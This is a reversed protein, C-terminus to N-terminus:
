NSEYEIEGNVFVKINKGEFATKAANVASEKSSCKITTTITKIVEIEVEYEQQCEDEFTVAKVDNEAVCQAANYYPYGDKKTEEVIISDCYAYYTIRMSVGGYDLRNNVWGYSVFEARRDGEYLRIGLRGKALQNLTVAKGNFIFGSLMPNGNLRRYEDVSGYIYSCREIAIWKRGLGAVNVYAYGWSDFAGRVIGSVTFIFREIRFARLTSDEGFLGFLTKETPMRFEQNLNHAMVYSIGTRGKCFPSENFDANNFITIYAM